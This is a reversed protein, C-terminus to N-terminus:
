VRDAKFIKELDPRKMHCNDRTRPCCVIRHYINGIPAEDIDEQTPEIKAREDDTLHPHKQKLFIDLCLLCRNHSVM